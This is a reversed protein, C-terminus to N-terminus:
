YWRLVVKVVVARDVEEVKYYDGCVESIALLLRLTCGASKSLGRKKVVTLSFTVEKLSPHLDMVTM